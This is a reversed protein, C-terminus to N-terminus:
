GLPWDRQTQDETADEYRYYEAEIRQPCLELRNTVQFWDMCGQLNAMCVAIDEPVKHVLAVSLERMCRALDDSGRLQEPQKTEVRLTLVLGM